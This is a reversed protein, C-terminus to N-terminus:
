LREKSALFLFVMGRGEARFTIYIHNSNRYEVYFVENGENDKHSLTPRFVDDVLDAFQRTETSNKTIVIYGVITGSEVFYGISESLVIFDYGGSKTKEFEVNYQNLEKVVEKESRGINEYYAGRQTANQSLGVFAFSMLLTLLTLFKRM